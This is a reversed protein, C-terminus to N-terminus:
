KAGACAVRNKREALKAEKPRSSVKVEPRGARLTRHTAGGPSRFVAPLM